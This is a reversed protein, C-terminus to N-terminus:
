RQAVTARAPNYWAIACALLHALPALPCTQLHCTQMHALSYFFWGRASAYMCVQLRTLM